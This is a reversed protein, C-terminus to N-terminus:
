KGFWKKDTYCYRISERFLDVFRQANGMDDMSYNRVATDSTSKNGISLRYTDKEKPEYVKDCGAIAKEITITGYTSGSQKRDWKDRMLGSSRFIADMKDSDCGTWFALMNCFALDAESQSGYMSFDGNLLSRFLNGNKANLAIDIIDNATYVVPASIKRAVPEKGGGIYKSHLSKVKETCDTIDGYESCYDGTVVFFRGNEYMEFGGFDHKKKRGGKPLTGKCVIHIGTKSQSYETYSQLTHVFEAVINDTGGNKYDEIDEPMDDLDVGFFPSNGFMFGIGSYKHSERLATDFDTWTSPNNSQAMGGTLPNVPKKSIGSHSREDAVAQWCVWNPYEKLEQPVVSYLNKFSM